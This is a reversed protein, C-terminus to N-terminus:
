IKTKYWGLSYPIFYYTEFTNKNKQRNGVRMERIIQVDSSNVLQITNPTKIDSQIRVLITTDVFPFSIKFTIYHFLSLKENTIEM